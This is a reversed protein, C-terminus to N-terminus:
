SRFHLYTTLNNKFIFKKKVKRNCMMYLEDTQRRPKSQTSNKKQVSNYIICQQFGYLWKNTEDKNFSRLHIAQENGVEVESESILVIIMVGNASAVKKM